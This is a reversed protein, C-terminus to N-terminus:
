LIPILRPPLRCRTELEGWRGSFGAGNMAEDTWADATGYINQTKDAVLLKEGEPTVAQDCRMGVFQGTTGPM